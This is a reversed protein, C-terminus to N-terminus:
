PYLFKISAKAGVAIAHFALYLRISAFNTIVLYSMYVSVMLGAIESFCAFVNYSGALYLSYSLSFNWYTFDRVPIPNIHTLNGARVSNM